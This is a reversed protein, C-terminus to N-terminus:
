PASSRSTFLMGTGVGVMIALLLGLRYPLNFTLCATLAAAVASILRPRTTVQPALLGVLTLVVMFDLGLAHLDPVYQGAFIGVASGTNWALYIVTSSGLYFAALTRNQGTEAHAEHLLKTLSLAYTEECILFALLVRWGLPLRGFHPLLTAGYLMHRLNVVFTSFAIAALGAHSSLLSLAVMQSTGAFVLQSLLQSALPGLISQAALTGYLLSVGLVGPAFPLAARLGQQYPAGFRQWRTPSIKEPVPM